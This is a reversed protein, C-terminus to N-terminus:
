VTTAWPDPLTGERVAAEMVFKPCVYNRMFSLLADALGRLADETGPDTVRGEADFAKRVNAISIANPVALAGVHGCISRLQEISKIAGIRGAAVGLLGVPKGQLASPYGMNEICLKIMASMSGHYEPTALVVGSAERVADRLRRGDATTPRGPFDLQLAGGDFTVVEFPGKALEDNVVALARATYSALQSSGAITVITPM